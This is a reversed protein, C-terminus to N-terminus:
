SFCSSLPLVGSPAAANDNVIEARVEHELELLQNPPEFSQPRMVVVLERFNIVLGSLYARSEHSQTM